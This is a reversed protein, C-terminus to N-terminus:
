SDYQSHQANSLKQYNRQHQENDHQQNANHEIMRQSNCKIKKCHTQNRSFTLAIIMIFNFVDLKLIKSKLAM